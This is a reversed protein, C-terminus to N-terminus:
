LEYFDIGLAAITEDPSTVVQIQIKEIYSVIMARLKYLDDASLTMVGSYHIDGKREAQLASITKARWQAHHGSLLEASSSGLHLFSEKRYYSDGKSEVLGCNELFSLADSVQKLPLNLRKSIAKSTRLQAIGLIAFIVGFHWASYYKVQEEYTITHDNRLRREYHLREGLASKIQSRFYEKLETTGARNFQVLLMFFHSEEKSHYLLRNIKDAQELSFQLSRSLVQSVFSSQCGIAEALEKRFGRGQGPKSRIVEQLYSKYDLYDFIKKKMTVSLKLM